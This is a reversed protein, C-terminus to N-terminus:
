RRWAVFGTGADFNGASTVLGVHTIGGTVIVAGSMDYICSQTSNFNMGRGFWRTGDTRTLM